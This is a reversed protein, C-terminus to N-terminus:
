TERGHHYKQFATLHKPLYAFCGVALKWDHPPDIYQHYDSLDSQSLPTIPFPIGHIKCSGLLSYSFLALDYYPDFECRRAHPPFPQKSFDHFFGTDILAVDVLAGKYHHIVVNGIHVDMFLQKRQALVLLMDVVHFVIQQLEAASISKDRLADSLKMDYVGMTIKMPHILHPVVPPLIRISASLLPAMPPFEQQRTTNLINQIHGFEVACDQERHEGEFIKNGILNNNPLLQFYANRGRYKSM